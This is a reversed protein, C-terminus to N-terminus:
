TSTFSATKWSNARLGYNTMWAAHDRLLMPRDGPLQETVALNEAQGPEAVELAPLHADRGRGAM